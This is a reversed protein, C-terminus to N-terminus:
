MASTFGAKKAHVALFLLDSKITSPKLVADADERLNVPYQWNANEGPPGRQVFRLIFHTPM